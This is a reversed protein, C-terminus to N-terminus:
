ITNDKWFFAFVKDKFKIGLSSMIKGLTCHQHTTIEEVMKNFHDSPTTM